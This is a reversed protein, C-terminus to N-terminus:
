ANNRKTIISKEPVPDFGGQHFPHCRGVRKTGLYLGKLVGFREVAEKTYESCTPRFRCVGGRFVFRMLGHDPSLTKQYLSILQIVIKKGM